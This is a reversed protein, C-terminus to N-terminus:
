VASCAIRTGIEVTRAIQVMRAVIHLVPCLGVRLPQQICHVVITETIIHRESEMTAIQLHIVLRRIRIHRNRLQPVTHVALFPMQLLAVGIRHDKIKLRFVRQFTNHIIRIALQIYAFCILTEALIPQLTIRHCEYVVMISEVATRRIAVVLKGLGSIQRISGILVM